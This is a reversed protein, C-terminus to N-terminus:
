TARIELSPDKKFKETIEPIYRSTAFLNIGCKTQLNFLEPLFESRCGNDTQCEDLADVLIFVRSYAAAVLQLTKSIENVSPQSQWTEHREHLSKVNEPLTTKGKALQKLLSKLLHELRQEDNRRFNCYLYAIAINADTQFRTFLEDVVISTLITKGAGPIGPCFLTQNNTDVWGKFEASGLLWEGTGTQRRGLFDNQQPTYDIPTLWDYIADRQGDEQHRVLKTTNELVFRGNFTNLLSINSVIRDRFEHIDDPELTLRKWARKVKKGV